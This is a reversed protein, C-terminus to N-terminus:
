ARREGSEFEVQTETFGPRGSPWGRHWHRPPPRPSGPRRRCSALGVRVPVTVPVTVSVASSCRVRLGAQGSHSQGHSQTARRRCRSGHEPQRWDAPGGRRGPGHATRMLSNGVQIAYYGLNRCSLFQYKRLRCFSMKPFQKIMNSYNIQTIIAYDAYHNAYNIQTIDAYHIPTIITYNAYNNRLKKQM